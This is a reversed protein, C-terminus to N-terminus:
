SETGTRTVIEDSPFKVTIDVLFTKTGDGNDKLTFGEKELTCSDPSKNGISALVAGDEYGFTQAVCDILIEASLYGVMTGPDDSTKQMMSLINGDLSYEYKYSGDTGESFIAIGDESLEASMGYGNSSLQLVEASGNFKEVIDSLLEDKGDDKSYVTTTSSDSSSVSPPESFVAVSETKGCGAMLSMIAIILTCVVAQYKRKKM